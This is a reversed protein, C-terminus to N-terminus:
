SKIAKEAKLEELITLSQRAAIALLGITAMLIASAVGVGLIMTLPSLLPLNAQAHSTGVKYLQVITIVLSICALTVVAWGLILLASSLSPLQPTPKATAKRRPKALSQPLMIQEKCRPCTVTKGALEEEVHLTIRCQPCVHKIM